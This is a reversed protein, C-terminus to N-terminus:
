GVTGTVVHDAVPVESGWDQGAGQGTVMMVERFGM